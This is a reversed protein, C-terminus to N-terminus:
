QQRNRTCLAGWFCSQGPLQGCGTRPVGTLVTEWPFYRQEPSAGCSHVTGCALLLTVCAVVGGAQANRIAEYTVIVGRVFLLDEVDRYSLCFRFYLWVAHSM